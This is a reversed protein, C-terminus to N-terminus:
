AGVMLGIDPRRERRRTAPPGQSLLCRRNLFVCSNQQSQESIHWIQWGRYYDAKHSRDLPLEPWYSLWSDIPLRRLVVWFLCAALGIVSICHCALLLRVALSFINRKQLVYFHNYLVDPLFINSLLMKVTIKAANTNLIKVNISVM